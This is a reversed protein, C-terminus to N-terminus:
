GKKHVIFSPGSNPNVSMIGWVDGQKAISIDWVNGLEAAPVYNLAKVKSATVQYAANRGAFFFYDPPFYDCATLTQSKGTAYLLEYVPPNGPVRQYFDARETVPPINVHDAYVGSGDPLFYFSTVNYLPYNEMVWSMNAADWRYCYGSDYDVAWGASADPFVWHDVEGFNTIRYPTWATGDFHFADNGDSVWVDNEGVAALLKLRGGNLGAIPATLWSSGDYHLVVPGDGNGIVWGDTPTVFDIAELTTDSSGPLFYAIRWVAGDYQLILADNTGQIENHRYGCAWGLADGAMEIGKLVTDPASWAIDWYSLQDVGVPNQDNGCAVILAGILALITLTRKM